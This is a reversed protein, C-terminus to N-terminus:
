WKIPSWFEKNNLYSLEGSLGQLKLYWSHLMLREAKKGGYKKDGYIPANLYKLTLRIQHKRGTIIQAIKRNGEFYFQTVGEKSNDKPKPSIKTKQAQDDKYFYLKIRQNNPTFDSLFQYKKIFKHHTQNLIKVSLYNKGYLIIGSTDKDLRGVHSPTFSDIKQFNLYGLVQNDLSNEEGHVAIGNPKNIILINEDEYLIDLQNNFIKINSEDTEQPDFIGYVTIVDGQNVKYNKDIKRNGNVKIDKKRFIKEIKSLPLNPFYKQLIKFVSRTSDNKTAIIEIM